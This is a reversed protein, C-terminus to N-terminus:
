EILELNPLQNIIQKIESEPFPYLQEVNVVFLEDNFYGNAALQDEVDFRIRGNTFVLKKIKSPSNM